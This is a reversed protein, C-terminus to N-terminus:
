EVAVFRAVLARICGLVALLWSLIDDDVVVDDIDPPAWPDTFENDSSGAAFVTGGDVDAEHASKIMYSHYFCFNYPSLVLDVVLSSSIGFYIKYYKNFLVSFPIKHSDLRREDVCGNVVNYSYM